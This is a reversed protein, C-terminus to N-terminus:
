KLVDSYVPDNELIKKAFPCVPIIKLNASRSFEVVRDVLLHALGHGRLSEDVLTHEIVLTSEDKYVYTIKAKAQQQNPGVYFALRGSCIEHNSHTM